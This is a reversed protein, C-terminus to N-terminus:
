NAPNNWQFMTDLAFAMLVEISASSSLGAGIPLNGYFVMDLGPLAQGEFSIFYNIVGLPYNFWERGTKTYSTQWIYTLGDGSFQSM